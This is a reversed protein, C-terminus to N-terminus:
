SFFLEPDSFWSKRVLFVMKQSVIRGFDLFSQKKTKGLSFNTKRGSVM